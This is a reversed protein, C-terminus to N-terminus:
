SHISIRACWIIHVALAVAIWLTILKSTIPKAHLVLILPIAQNLHTESISCSFLMCSTPLLLLPSPLRVAPVDSFLYFDVCYLVSHSFLYTNSQNCLYSIYYYLITNYFLRWTWFCIFKFSVCSPPFFQMLEKPPLPPPHLPGPRSCCGHRKNDNFGFFLHTISVLIFHIALPSLCISFLDKSDHKSKYKKWKTNRWLANLLRIYCPSPARCASRRAHQAHLEIIFKWEINIIKESTKKRNIPDSRYLRIVSGGIGARFPSNAGWFM